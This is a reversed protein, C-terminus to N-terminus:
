PSLVDVYGVRLLTEYVDLGEGPAMPYEWQADVTGSDDPVQIRRELTRDGSGDWPGQARNPIPGVKNGHVTATITVNKM